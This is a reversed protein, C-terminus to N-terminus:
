RFSPKAGILATVSHGVIRLCARRNRKV